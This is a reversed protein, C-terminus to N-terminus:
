PTARPSRWSWRSAIRMRPRAGSGGDDSHPPKLLPKLPRRAIPERARASPPQPFFRGRRSLVGTSRFGRGQNANGLTAGCTARKGSGGQVPMTVGLTVRETRKARRRCCGSVGAPVNLGGGVRRTSKEDVKRSPAASGAPEATLLRGKVLAKTWHASLSPGSITTAPSRTIGLSCLELELEFCRVAKRYSQLRAASPSGRLRAVDPPVKM